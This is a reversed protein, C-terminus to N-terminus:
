GSVAGHPPEGPRTNPHTGTPAPVPMVAGIHPQERAAALVVQHRREAFAARQARSLQYHCQPCSVGQAFLPSQRDTPTLPRRCGYCQTHTGLALSPDVAVRTDFVFCEGAWRSRRAPTEALYRLIGGALQYVEECGRARLYASAKECRIGGTCFMAVRRAGTAALLQDIAHPFDRFSALALDHAGVFTGIRTEYSNRIDVLLVDATEILDNWAAPEVRTGTQQATALDPQGLTVIEPKIKIKLRRFPPSATESWRVDLATFEPQARICDLMAAVAARTGAINANIGEPGLLITGLVSCARAQGLLTTRLAQPAAVGVFKYFSAVSTTATAVPSHTVSMCHVGASCYRRTRGGRVRPCAHAIM